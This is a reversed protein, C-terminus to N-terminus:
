CPERISATIVKQQTSSSQGSYRVTNPIYRKPLFRPPERLFHLNDKPGLLRQFIHVTQKTVPRQKKPQCCNGLFQQMIENLWVLFAYADWRENTGARLSPYSTGRSYPGISLTITLLNTETQETSVPLSSRTYTTDSVTQSAEPAHPYDSSRYLLRMVPKYINELKLAQFSMSYKKDPARTRLFISWHVILISGM